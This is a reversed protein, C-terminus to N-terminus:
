FYNFLSPPFNTAPGMYTGSVLVSKGVSWRDYYLKPKSKSTSFYMILSQLLKGTTIHFFGTHITLHRSFAPTDSLPFIDIALCRGRLVNVGWTFWAGVVFIDQGYSPLLEGLVDSLLEQFRHKGHRWRWTLLWDSLLESPEWIRWLALHPRSGRPVRLWSHSRQLPDPAM